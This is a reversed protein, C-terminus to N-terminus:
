IENNAKAARDTLTALWSRTIDTECEFGQARSSGIGGVSPMAKEEVLALIRALTNPALAHALLALKAVAPMAILADGHELGKVVREAARPASMTLLPMSDGLKFWRYEERHKGKMMAHRPSGTRMLGPVVTTTAIGYKRLAVGMGESLGVLAFKSASYPVLHPVALVGGISAINAIRGAGRAIMEPVIEQIMQLPAWFHTAMAEAYDRRDMLETPGVGIVGACNVLVDIPGVANRVHRVFLAVEDARTVDCKEAYCGLEDQAVQLEDVTRACIALKAGRAKLVRAISLGLGRSGGTVVCVKGALDYRTRARVIARGALLAAVGLAGWHKSTLQM